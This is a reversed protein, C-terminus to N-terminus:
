ESLQLDSLTRTADIEAAYIERMRNAELDKRSLTDPHHPWRTMRPRRVRLTQQRDRQRGGRDSPSARKAGQSASARRGRESTGAQKACSGRSRWTPRVG